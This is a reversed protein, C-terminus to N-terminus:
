TFLLLKKLRPELHKEDLKYGPHTQIFQMIQVRCENLMDDRIIFENNKLNFSLRSFRITKEKDRWSTYVLRSSKPISNVKVVYDKNDHILAVECYPVAVIGGYGNEFSLKTYQTNVAKSSFHSSYVNRYGWSETIIADPFKALVAKYKALTLDIEQAAAALLRKAM